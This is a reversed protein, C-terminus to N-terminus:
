EPRKKFKVAEASRSVDAKLQTAIEKMVEDITADKFEFSLKTTLDLGDAVDFTLGTVELNNLVDSAPIRVVRLTLRKRALDSPKPKPPKPQVDGHIWKQIQDHQQVLGSLRVGDKVVTADADPWTERIQDLLSDRRIQAVSHIKEILAQTPFPVIRLGSASDTWEWTQGFQTLFVALLESTSALPYAQHFLQDYPLAPSQDVKLGVPRTLRQLVDTPQELDDWDLQRPKTLEARRKVSVATLEQRRLEAVTALLRTSEPPGIYLIDGVRALALDAQSAVHDLAETLSRPQEDLTVLREPDSRRDLIISVKFRASLDALVARLPRDKLLAVCPAELTRNLATGTLWLEASAPRTLVLALTALCALRLPALRRHNTPGNM